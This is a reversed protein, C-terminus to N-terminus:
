YAESTYLKNLKVSTLHRFKLKQLWIDLEPKVDDTFLIGNMELEIEVIMKM